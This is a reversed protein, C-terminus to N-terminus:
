QEILEIDNLGPINKRLIKEVFSCFTVRASPCGACVGRFKLKVNYHKDIEVLDIGGNHTLLQPNIDREIVQEIKEKIVLM